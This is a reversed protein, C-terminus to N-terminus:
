PAVGTSTDAPQSGPAQLQVSVLGTHVLLTFDEAEVAAAVSDPQYGAHILTQITIAQAQQIEAADKRDERLFPVDRADYWLRVGEQRRPMVTAMSGAANQWLPHMTGDAFRRRAQAYNSYTAAELGESLGVIVPPVGAAAAIRTEGHGQVQKFDMQKFDSGVVTVDAGGGLFMAEYANDAGSHQAKFMEAFLKLKEVGVARDLKVIMNPTAGNEFFKAKHLGMAKDNSIERLVPTLWSMGRYTALPDPMPAFHVVEDPLFVASPGSNGGVGGESYAYGIKRWGVQGNGVRRPELAIEVWDPRMRVLENQDRFWYSNGALDADQIMRATMDQTTGGTWPSELISLDKTGFMKSPRGNNMQQWTFRIASFVLQRVAMCSFVVGNSAYAASAFGQLDNPIRESAGQITQNIGNTFGYANGNFVFNNLANAFDDVSSISRNGRVTQLL